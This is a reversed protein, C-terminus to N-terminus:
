TGIWSEAVEHAANSQRRTRLCQGPPLSLEYSCHSRGAPTCTAPNIRTVRVGAVRPPVVRRAAKEACSARDRRQGPSCCQLTPENEASDRASVHAERPTSGLSLAM